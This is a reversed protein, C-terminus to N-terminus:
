APRAEEFKHCACTCAVFVTVIDVDLEYGDRDWVVACYEHKGAKCPDSIKLILKQNSLAPM